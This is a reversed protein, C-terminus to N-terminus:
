NSIAPLAHHWRALSLEIVRVVHLIRCRVDSKLESPDWLLLAQFWGTGPAFFEEHSDEIAPPLDQCSFDYYIAILLVMSQALLPTLLAPNSSPNLLVSATQRFLQMFSDMLKSLVLNIENFLQDSRVHIRWHQFISHATELVGINVNYDTASLSAVLQQLYDTRLWGFVSHRQCWHPQGVKDSFGIGRDLFCIWGSTRSHSQRCTCVSVANGTSAPRATRGQGARAITSCGSSRWVRLTAYCSFFAGRGM